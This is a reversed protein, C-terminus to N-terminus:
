RMNYCKKCVYMYRDKENEKYQIEVLDKDFVENNCNKCKRMNYKYKLFELKFGYYNILLEELDQLTTYQANIVVTRKLHNEFKDVEISENSIREIIYKCDIYDFIHGIEIKNLAVRFWKNKYRVRKVIM